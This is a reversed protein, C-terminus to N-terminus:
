KAPQYYVEESWIPDSMKFDMGMYMKETNWVHFEYGDIEFMRVFKNYKDESIKGKYLPGFGSFKGAYGNRILIEKAQKNHGMQNDLGNEYIKTNRM